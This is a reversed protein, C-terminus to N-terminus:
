GCARRTRLDENADKAGQNSTTHNRCRRQYRPASRLTLSISIARRRVRTREKLAKEGPTEIDIVDGM